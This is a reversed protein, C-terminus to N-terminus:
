EEQPPVPRSNPWLAERICVALVALDIILAKADPSGDLTTGLAELALERATAPTAPALAGALARAAVGAADQRERLVEAVRAAEIAAPSPPKVYEGRGAKAIYGDGDAWEPPNLIVSGEPVILYHTVGPEYVQGLAGSPIAYDPEFLTWDALQVTKRGGEFDLVVYGDPHHLFQTM